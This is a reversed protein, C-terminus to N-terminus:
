IVIQNGNQFHDFRRTIVANFNGQEVVVEVVLLPTLSEIFEPEFSSRYRNTADIVIRDTRVCGNARCTNLSVLPRNVATGGQTGGVEDPRKM